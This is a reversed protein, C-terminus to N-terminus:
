IEERRYISQNALKAMAEGLNEPSGFSVPYFCAAKTRRRKKGKPAAFCFRAKEIAICFRSNTM